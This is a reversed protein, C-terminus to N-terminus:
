LLFAISWFVETLTTVSNDKWYLATYCSTGLIMVHLFFFFSAQIQSLIKLYIGALIM